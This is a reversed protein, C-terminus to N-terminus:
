QARAFDETTPNFEAVALTTDSQGYSALWRGAFYVLGEVFTVNSVLGHTDEFCGTPPLWQRAGIEVLTGDWSGPTPTYIPSEQSCPTWHVLDSSTAYYGYPLTAWTSFGPFLPGHKAWTRLDRPTALGIRSILDPGRARYLLSVHDGGAIAAPNYLNASEWGDGRPRLIPNAASPHFPGLPFWAPPNPGAPSMSEGSTGSSLALM